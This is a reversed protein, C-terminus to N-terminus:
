FWLYKNGLLQKLRSVEQSLQAIKFDRDDIVEADEAPEFYERNEKIFDPTLSITQKKTVISNNVVDEFSVTGSYKNTEINYELVNGEKLQGLDKLLRIKNFM